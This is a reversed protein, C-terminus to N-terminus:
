ETSFPPKMTSTIRLKEEDYAMVHKWLSIKTNIILDKWTSFTNEDRWSNNVVEDRILNKWIPKHSRVYQEIEILLKRVNNPLSNVNKQISDIRSIFKVYLASDSLVGPMILDIVEDPFSPNDDPQFLITRTHKELADNLVSVLSGYKRFELINSDIASSIAFEDKALCEVKNYISLNQVLNDAWENDVFKVLYISNIKLATESHVTFSVRYLGHINEISNDRIYNFKIVIPYEKISIFTNLEDGAPAYYYKLFTSLLHTEFYGAEWENSGSSLRYPMYFDDPVFVKIHQIFFNPKLSSFKVSQLHFRDDRYILEHQWMPIKDRSAQEQSLNNAKIAIVLALLSIILPVFGTIILPYRKLFDEFRGFLSQNQHLRRSTSM